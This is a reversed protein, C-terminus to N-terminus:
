EPVPDYGGQCFPNCRLLRMATLWTGKLLGHRQIAEYGFQSCTPYYCCVSPLYPSIAQQYFRISLLALRRSFAYM